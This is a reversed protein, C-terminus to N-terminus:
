CDIAVFPLGLGESAARAVAQPPGDGAAAIAAARLQGAEAIVASIEQEDSDEVLRVRHVVGAAAFDDAWRVAAERIARNDALLLM